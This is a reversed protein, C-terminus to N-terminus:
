LKGPRKSGASSDLVRPVGAERFLDWPELFLARPLPTCHTSDYDILHRSALFLAVQIKQDDSLSYEDSGILLPYSCSESENVHEVLLKFCEEKDVGHKRMVGNQHTQDGSLYDMLAWNVEAEELLHPFRSRLLKILLDNARNTKVPETEVTHIIEDKLRRVLLVPGTYHNLNESINLNFYTRITNVVLPRWSTPMKSVALPLIDDFTADLIVGGIDPYQKSAWACPFGGISWAFIIVNQESFGLKHVAFRIVTDMANVEQDPFPLGTSGAFGPHNWGLVSYGADIPTCM